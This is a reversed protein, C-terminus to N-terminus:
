DRGLKEADRLTKTRLVNRIRLVVESRDMPKTLFDAAGAGLCMKRVDDGRLASVMMIPIDRTVVSNKLATAVQYGDMGPMMVDLLILDLPKRAAIDLAECGGAASVTVFGEWALVVELVERNEADDDVIMICTPPAALAPIASM